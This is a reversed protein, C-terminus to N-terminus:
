RRVRPRGGSTPRSHGNQKASKVEGMFNLRAMLEQAVNFLFVFGFKVLRESTLAVFAGSPAEEVDEELDWSAILTSVMEALVPTENGLRGEVNDLLTLAKEVAEGDGEDLMSITSLRSLGALAGAFQRLVHPTFRDPYYRLKIAIGQINLTAEETRAAIQSAKAM